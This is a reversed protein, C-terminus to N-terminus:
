HSPTPMFSPQTQPGGTSEDQTPMSTPITMTKDVPQNINGNLMSMNPIWTPHTGVCVGAVFSLLMMALVAIVNYLRSHKNQEPTTEM